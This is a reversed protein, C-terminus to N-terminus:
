INLCKYASEVLFHGLYPGEGHNHFQRITLLELGPDRLALTVVTIHTHLALGWHLIVSLHVAGVAIKHM